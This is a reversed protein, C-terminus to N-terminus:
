EGQPSEGGSPIHSVESRWKEDRSAGPLLSVFTAPNSAQLMERCRFSAVSLLLLAQASCSLCCVNIFSGRLQKCSVKQFFAPSSFYVQLLSPRAPTQSASQYSLQALM